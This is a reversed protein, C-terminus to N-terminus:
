QCVRVHPEHGDCGSIDQNFNWKSSFLGSMDTVLSTDWSPMDVGCAAGCNAGGTSCCAEGSSVKLLCREV